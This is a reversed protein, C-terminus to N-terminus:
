HIAPPQHALPLASRVLAFADLLALTNKRAEVGGVTVDHGQTSLASALEITHVVGGRPNVSHTLLAIRLADMNM